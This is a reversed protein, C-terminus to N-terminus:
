SRTRSRTSTKRSRAPGSSDRRWRCTRSARAHQKVRSFREEGAAYLIKGDEVISATADKDLPSIGIVRMGTRERAARAAGATHLRSAVLSMSSSTSTGVSSTWSGSCTRRRVARLAHPGSGGVSQPFQFRVGTGRARPAMENIPHKGRPHLGREFSAAPGGHRTRSSFAPCRGDRDRQAVRYAPRRLPGLAGSSPVALLPREFARRGVAARIRPRPLEPGRGPPLRFGTAPQSGGTFGLQKMSATPTPAWDTADRRTAPPPRASCRPSASTSSASRRRRSSARSPQRSVLEARCVEEDHPPRCGPTCTPASRAGTASREEARRLGGREVRGPLRDVYCPRVGCADFVEQARTIFPMATVGTATRPRAAQELRVGRGHRQRGSSHPPQQKSLVASGM